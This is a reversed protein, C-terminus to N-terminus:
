SIRVGVELVFTRTSLSVYHYFHCALARRARAWRRSLFYVVYEIANGGRYFAVLQEDHGSSDHPTVAVLRM